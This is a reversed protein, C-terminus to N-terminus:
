EATVILIPGCLEECGLLAFATGEPNPALDYDAANTIGWVARTEDAFLLDDPGGLVEAIAATNHAIFGARLKIGLRRLEEAPLIRAPKNPYYVTAKM